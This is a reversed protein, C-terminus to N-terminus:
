RRRRSRQATPAASAEGPVVLLHGRSPACHISLEVLAHETHEGAARARSGPAGSTAAGGRGRARRSSAM